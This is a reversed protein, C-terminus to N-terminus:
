WGVKKEEGVCKAYDQDGTPDFEPMPMVGNLASGLCDEPDKNGWNVQDLGALFFYFEDKREDKGKNKTWPADNDGITHHRYQVTISSHQNGEDRYHPTSTVDYYAGNDFIDMYFIRGDTFADLFDQGCKKRSMLLFGLYPDTIVDFDTQKQFNRIRMLAANSAWWQVKVSYKNQYEVPVADVFTCPGPPPLTTTVEPTAMTDAIFQSIEDSGTRVFVSPKHNDACDNGRSLVGYVVPQGGVACILPGGLDRGCTGVNTDAFGDLNDDPRGACFETEKLTSHESHAVCWANDFVNLALSRLKNSVNGNAGTQGWGATWCKTGAVVNHVAPVCAYSYPPVNKVGEEDEHGWHLPDVRIMCVDNFSTMQKPARFFQQNEDVKFNSDYIGVTLNDMSGTCCSASTLIWEDDVIVGGCDPGSDPIEGFVDTATISVMFEWGEAKKFSNMTNGGFIRGNQNPLGPEPDPCVLGPDINNDSIEEFNPDDLVTESEGMQAQLFDLGAFTDSYISPYGETGCATSWSYSGYVVAHGDDDCILPAGQDGQCPGSGDDTLNNGDDDPIGACFEVNQRFQFFMYSSTNLCYDWDLINLGVSRLKAAQNGGEKMAGWGATWCSRGPQYSEAPLCASTYCGICDAPANNALNPTKIVCFDNSRSKTSTGTPDFDPHNEFSIPDM